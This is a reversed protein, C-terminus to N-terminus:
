HQSLYQSLGMASYAGYVRYVEDFLDEEDKGTLTIVADTYEIGNRGYDKFHHYVSPIVPGYMWAEIDDEFLPENFKAL